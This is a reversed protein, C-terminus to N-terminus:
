FSYTGGGAKLSGSQSILDGCANLSTITDSYGFQTSGSTGAFRYNLSTSSSVCISGGSSHSLGSQQSWETDQFTLTGTVTTTTNTNTNVAYQSFAITLTTNNQSRVCSSGCSIGSQFSVTGSASATGSSGSVLHGSYTGNSMGTRVSYAVAALDTAVMGATFSDGIPLLGQGSGADTSSGCAVLGFALVVARLAKFRLM